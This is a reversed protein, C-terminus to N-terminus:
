AISNKVASSKVKVVLYIWLQAGNRSQDLWKVREPAALLQSGSKRLLM